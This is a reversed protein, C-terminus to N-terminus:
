YLRRCTREEAFEKVGSTLPFCAPARMKQRYSNYPGRRGAHVYRTHAYVHIPTGARVTADYIGIYRAARDPARSAARSSPAARCPCPRRCGGGGGGGGGGGSDLSPSTREAKWERETTRGAVDLQLSVLAARWEIAGTDEGEGGM